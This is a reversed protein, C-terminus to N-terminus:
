WRPHWGEAVAALVIRASAEADSVPDHHELPIGLYQCVKPLAAPRLNWLNRALQQTCVFNLEPVRIGYYRCCAELVQRDFAANHAAVFTVTTLLDNLSPWIEAFTPSDQVDNWTIGHVNTFRFSPGPPRILWQRTAVIEGNRVEAIGLACASERPHDATDFDLAVFRKPLQRPRRM